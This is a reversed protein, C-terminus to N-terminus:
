AHPCLLCLKFTEPEIKIKKRKRECKESSQCTHSHFSRVSNHSFRSRSISVAIVVVIVFDVRFFFCVLFRSVSCGITHNAPSIVLLYNVSLLCSVIVGITLYVNVKYIIIIENKHPQMVIEVVNREDAYLIM